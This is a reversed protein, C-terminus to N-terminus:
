VRSVRVPNSLGLTLPLFNWRSGYQLLIGLTHFEIMLLDLATGMSKFVARCIVWHEMNKDM